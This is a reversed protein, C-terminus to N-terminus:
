FGILLGHRLEFIIGIGHSAIVPIIQVPHADPCQGQHLLPFHIFRQRQILFRLQDTHILAQFHFFDLCFLLQLGHQRGQTQIRVDTKKGTAFFIDPFRPVDIFGNSPAVGRICGISVLISLKEGTLEQQKLLGLRPQQLSQPMSRVWQLPSFQIRSQAHYGGICALQLLTLRIQGFRPADIFFQHSLLIILIVSIEIHCIGSIRQILSTEPISRFHADIRELDQCFPQLISGLCHM